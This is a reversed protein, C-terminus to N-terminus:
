KLYNLDESSTEICFRYTLLVWSKLILKPKKYLRNSACNPTSACPGPVPDVTLRTM